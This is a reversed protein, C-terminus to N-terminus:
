LKEFDKVPRGALQVTEQDSLKIELYIRELPQASVFDTDVDIREFLVEPDRALEIALQRAYHTVTAIRVPEPRGVLAMARVLARMREISKPDDLVVELSNAPESAKVVCRVAPVRTRNDAREFAEAITRAVYDRIEDKTM